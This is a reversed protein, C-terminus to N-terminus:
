DRCVGTLCRRGVVPWFAALDTREEVARCMQRFRAEYDSGLPRVTTVM